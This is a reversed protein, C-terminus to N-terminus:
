RVHGRAIIRWQPSFLFQKQLVNLLTYLCKFQEVKIPSSPSNNADLPYIGSISSFVNCHMPCLIVWCLIDITNSNLLRTVM